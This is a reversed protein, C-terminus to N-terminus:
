QLPLNNLWNAIYAANEPWSPQSLVHHNRGEFEKFDTISNKDAYKKFNSYNLSAPIFNDNSGAMFLLPAHPRKFDIRAANIITDRVLLKSEPTLLDYYAQKQQEYNMGNTFAFQWESFSMLYSKKAPAFFGLAGWGAKYFSYKFTFVGKPQLSHIAVGAAALGLQVLLQLILGGLSHGVLVPKQPLQKVIDAFYATLTSLRQSAITEDPQRQRLTCAPADKHPWAPALTQYDRSEFYLKWNDWCTNSVFAGTIFVITNSTRKYSIAQEM